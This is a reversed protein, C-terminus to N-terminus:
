KERNSVTHVPEYPPPPGALRATVPLEGFGERHRRDGRSAEGITTKGICKEGCPSPQRESPLKLLGWSRRRFNSVKESDFSPHDRRKPTPSRALFARRM